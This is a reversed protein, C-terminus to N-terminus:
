DRRRFLSEAAGLHAKKDAIVARAREIEAQLEAVHAELEEISMSELPRRKAQRPELDDFSM